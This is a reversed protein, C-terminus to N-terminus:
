GIEYFFLVVVLVNAWVYRKRKKNVLHHIIELDFVGDIRIVMGFEISRRFVEM